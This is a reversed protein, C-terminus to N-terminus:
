FWTAPGPVALVAIGGVIWALRLAGAAPVIVGRSILFLGLACKAAAALALGPATALEILEPTHIMVLPILYLGLGLAMARGAVTHASCKM